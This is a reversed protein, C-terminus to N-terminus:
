PQAYKFGEPLPNVNDNEHFAISGNYKTMVESENNKMYSAYQSPFQDKFASSRTENKDLGTKYVPTKLNTSVDNCGGLALLGVFAALLVATGLFGRNM